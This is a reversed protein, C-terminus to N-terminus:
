HAKLWNNGRGCEVALKVGIDIASSMYETIQQAVDDAKSKDVEFVLEDHVQILMKADIEKALMAEYIDVMAKKIIDAATGQIATNVANREAASRVVANKSNIEELNRRRGYHTTVYGLEQTQEIQHAIYDQIKPYAKHHREILEKSEARSLNTQQSLGFASVGYIIGFNVTKAHSREERTVESLDKHFMYAATATHIDKDQAFEDLMKTEQSLAAIIRLEIQSYDAALLIKEDSSPIVAERIKKGDETNIPLNQLNPNSSSLRGTVTGLQNFQAHIRGTEKSLHKPLTDVYTNKLKTLGRWELIQGFIPDIKLYKRLEDEATSYAGSKTKKPKEVWDNKEFLVQGLQKPSAINFDDGLTNHIKTELQSIKDQLELSLTHLSQTDIAIGNAEMHQLVFVLKIELDHLLDVGKESIERDLERHILQRMVLDIIPQSYDADDSKVEVTSSVYRNYLDSLRKNATADVIHAMLEVERLVSHYTYDLQYDTIWTKIKDVVVTRQAVKAWQLIEAIWETDIKYVLDSGITLLGARDISIASPRKYEAIWKLEDLDTLSQLMINREDKTPATDFLTIETSQNTSFRKLYQQKTRRFELHDFLAIVDEHSPDITMSSFDAEVPADLLITALQKSIIGQQKNETIREKQKGKLDGLNELLNELSGYKQIFKIATKEGVGPLGPINDSADGMMGLYDIMQEPREFGYKENVEQRGMITAPAFRSAPRYLFIHDSVLQAYDKDPTYMYVDYGESEARKALTGIVDDAEYGELETRHIGMADLWEKIYPICAKIGEPTADRNAKYESYIKERQTKSPYDFAVLIKKVDHKNFLEFMAAVFGYAASTDLGKSNVRPNKIFAFYARYIIAYADIMYISERETKASM